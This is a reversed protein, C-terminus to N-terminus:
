TTRLDVLLDKDNQAARLTSSCEQTVNWPQARYTDPRPDGCSKLWCLISANKNNTSRTASDQPLLNASDEETKM